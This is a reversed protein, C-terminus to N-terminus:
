FLYLCDRKAMESFCFGGAHGTREKGFVWPCGANKELESPFRPEIKVLWQSSKRTVHTSRKGRQGMATRIVSVDPSVTELAKRCWLIEVNPTEADTVVSLPACHCYLNYVLRGVRSPNLCIRVFAYWREDVPNTSLNWLCNFAEWAYFEWAILHVSARGKVMSHMWVVKFSCNPAGTKLQRTREEPVTGINTVPGRENTM